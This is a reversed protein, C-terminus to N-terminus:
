AERRNHLLWVALEKKDSIGVEGQAVRLKARTRSGLRSMHQFLNRHKLAFGHSVRLERQQLPKFKQTAGDVQIPAGLVIASLWKKLEDGGVPVDRCRVYEDLAVKTTLSPCRTSAPAPSKPVPTATSAAPGTSSSSPSAKATATPRAAKASSTGITAAAKTTPAVKVKPAEKVKPAKKAKPAVNAKPAVKQWRQMRARSALANRLGVAFRSASPKRAAVALAGGLRLTPAGGDPDWGAWVHGEKGRRKVMTDSRFRLTKKRAPAAELGHADAALQARDIGLITTRAPCPGEVLKDEEAMTRRHAYAIRARLQVGKDTKRTSAALIPDRKAGLQKGRSCFRRGHTSLWETAFVRSFSTLLLVGADGRLFVDEEVQPGEKQLELVGSNAYADEESQEAIKTGVHEQQIAADAGLGRETAGSGNWFALYYRVLYEWKKPIFGQDLMRRWVFRNDITARTARRWSWDESPTSAGAHEGQELMREQIEIAKRVIANWETAVFELDLAAFVRKVAERM